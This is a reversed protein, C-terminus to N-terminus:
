PGTETMSSRPGGWVHAKACLSGRRGVGGLGGRHLVRQGPGETWSGRWGMSVRWGEKVVAM